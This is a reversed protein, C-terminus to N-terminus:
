VGRLGVRIVERSIVVARAEAKSGANGVVVAERSDIVMRAVVQMFRGVSGVGLEVGSFDPERRPRLPKPLGLVPPLGKVDNPM